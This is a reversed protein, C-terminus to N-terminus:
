NGESQQATFMNGACYKPPSYLYLLILKLEEFTNGTGLYCLMIPLHQSPNNAEQINNKRNAIIHTVTKFLEDYTHSDLQLFNKIIM